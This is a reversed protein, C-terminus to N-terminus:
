AARGQAKGQPSGESTCIQEPCIQVGPTRGKVGEPGCKTREFSSWATKDFLPDSDFGREEGYM